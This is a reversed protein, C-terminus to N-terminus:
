RDAINRQAVSNRVRMLWLPRKPRNPYRNLRLGWTRCDFGNFRSGKIAKHVM